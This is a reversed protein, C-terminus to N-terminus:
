QEILKQKAPQPPWIIKTQNDFGVLNVLLDQVRYM